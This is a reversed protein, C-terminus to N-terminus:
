SSSGETWFAVGVLGPGIHAGMVPSFESVFLEECEFESEIWLRLAEAPAAADAHLVAAHVRGDAVRDRMLEELRKVANRTTRPRGMSTIEGEALEFLPKIRLLSAGAHALGPVRGGKWLYRLTDVFALLRVKAIVAEAAAKVRQLSQGEGAARWAALAVLGEGGAATGSDLVTVELGPIATEAERAASVASDFSASFSSAVTLCLVSEAGQAAGRFGELFAAPSPASTTPRDSSVRLMRYFEAPSLDEGDAYTRDGLALRMPVLHMGGLRHASAPLSAASDVVIGVRRDNAM